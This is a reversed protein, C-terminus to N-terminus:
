KKKCGPLNLASLFSELRYFIIMNFRQLLLDSFLNERCYWDVIDVVHKMNCGEWLVRFTQEEM